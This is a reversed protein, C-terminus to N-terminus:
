SVFFVAGGLLITINHRKAKKDFLQTFMRAPKYCIDPYSDVGIEGLIILM